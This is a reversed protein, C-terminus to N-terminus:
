PGNRREDERERLSKEARVERVAQLIDALAEEETIGAELTQRHADEMLAAKRRRLELGYQRRQAAQTLLEAAFDEVPEPHHRDLGALRRLLDAAERPIHVTFAETEAVPM